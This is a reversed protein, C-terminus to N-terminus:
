CENQFQLEAFLTFKILIHVVNNWPFVIWSESNGLECFLMLLGGLFYSFRYHCNSLENMIKTVETMHIEIFKVTMVFARQNSCVISVRFAASKLIL